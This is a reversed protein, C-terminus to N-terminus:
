MQFDNEHNLKNHFVTGDLLKLQTLVCLYICHGTHFEVSIIAGTEESSEKM